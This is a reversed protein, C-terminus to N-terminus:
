EPRGPDPGPEGPHRTAACGLYKRLTPVPDVFHRSLTDSAGPLGAAIGILETFYVIPLGFVKGTEAEIREQYMDLNLQCMQCSVVIAQAGVRKAMDLIKAVMKFGVDPRSVMLSAGCCETKYAWDMGTAGLTKVIRDISQPNEYNPEGTVSPPRSAMCGYYSVVELGDLPNKVSSAIKELMKDTAFFNALDWIKPTFLGLRTRFGESGKEIEHVASKLRNFCLPCPVLMDSNGVEGALELNRGPLDVSAQHDISHAATAGCCNWDPVEQLEVGMAECVGHISDAYDRATGELSCGPYYTVRM